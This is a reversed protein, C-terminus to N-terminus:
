AQEAPGDDESEEARSDALRKMGYGILLGGGLMPYPSITYIVRATSSGFCASTDDGCAFGLFVILILPVILLLSGIVFLQVLSKRPSETRKTEKDSL